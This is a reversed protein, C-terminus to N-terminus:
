RPVPIKQMAEEIIHENKAGGYKAKTDLAIRHALVPVALARVDDPTVYDRGAICASSQAM